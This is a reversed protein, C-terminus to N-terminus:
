YFLTLSFGNNLLFAYKHASRNIGILELRSILIDHHLSNFACSLDHSGNSLITLSFSKIIKNRIQLLTNENFHSIHLASQMVNNSSNLTIFSQIKNFVIREIIKSSIPIQSIPCNTNLYFILNYSTKRLTSTIINHKFPTTNWQLSFIIIYYAFLPYYVLLVINYLTLYFYM